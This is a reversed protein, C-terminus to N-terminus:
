SRQSVTERKEPGVKSHDGGPRIRHFSAGNPSSDYAGVADVESTLKLRPLDSYLRLGLPSKVHLSGRDRTYRFDLSPHTPGKTVWLNVLVLLTM